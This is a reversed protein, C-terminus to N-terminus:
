CCPSSKAASVAAFEKEECLQRSLSGFAAIVEDGAAHGYRDNNSKFHDLDAMIMYQPIGPLAAALMARAQNMFGKRNLTDSLTDQQADVSADEM